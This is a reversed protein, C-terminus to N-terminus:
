MVSLFYKDEVIINAMYYNHVINNMRVYESVNQQLNLNCSM